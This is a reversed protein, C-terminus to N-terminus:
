SSVLKGRLAGFPSNDELTTEARSDAAGQAESGARRGCGPDDCMPAFPLGLLFEDELLENLDLPQDALIVEAEEVESDWADLQRQNAALLVSTRGGLEWRMPQLCRQCIVEVSGTLAILLRPRGSPDAGGEVRYAIEAAPDVVSEGARSWAALRVSGAVVQREAAFERARFRSLPQGALSTPIPTAKISMFAAYYRKEGTSDFFV